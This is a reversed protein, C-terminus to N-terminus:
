KGIIQNHEIAGPDSGDLEEDLKTLRSVSSSNAVLDLDAAM